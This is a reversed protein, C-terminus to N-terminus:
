VVEVKARWLFNKWASVPEQCFARFTPVDQNEMTLAPKYIKSKLEHWKLIRFRKYFCSWKQNGTTFYLSLSLAYALPSKIYNLTQWHDRKKQMCALCNFLLLLLCLLLHAQVVGSWVYNKEKGPIWSNCSSAREARVLLLLQLFHRQPLSMNFPFCTPPECRTKEQWAENM